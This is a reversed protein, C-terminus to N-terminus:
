NLEPSMAAQAEGFSKHHAFVDDVNRWWEKWGINM